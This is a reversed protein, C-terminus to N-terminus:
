LYEGEGKARGARFMMLMVQSYFCKVKQIGSETEEETSGRPDVKDLFMNPALSM